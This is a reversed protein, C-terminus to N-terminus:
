TAMSTRADCVVRGNQIVLRVNQADSVRHWPEGEVLVLDALKGPEV